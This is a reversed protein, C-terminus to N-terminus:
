VWELVGYETDSITYYVRKIRKARLARQCSPCPRSLRYGVSTKRSVYVTGYFDMKRMLRAEAHCAPLRNESPGNSATVLRGDSRIGVAGVYHARGDKKRHAVDAAISFYRWPM